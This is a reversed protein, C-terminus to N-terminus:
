RDRMKRFILLAVLAAAAVAGAKMGKSKVNDTKERVQEILADVKQELEKRTQELDTLEEKPREGM